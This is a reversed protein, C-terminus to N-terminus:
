QKFLAKMRAKFKGWRTTPVVTRKTAMLLLRNLEDYETM